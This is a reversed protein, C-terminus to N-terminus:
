SEWNNQRCSLSTILFRFLILILQPWGLSLLPQIFVRMLGDLFCCFGVDVVTVEDVTQLLSLSSTPNRTPLATRVVSAYM